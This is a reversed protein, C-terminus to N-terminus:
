GLAELAGAHRAGVTQIQGTPSRMMITSPQSATADDLPTVNNAAKVKKM